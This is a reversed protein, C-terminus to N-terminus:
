GVHGSLRMFYPNRWIHRHANKVGCYRTFCLIQPVLGFCGIILDLPVVLRWNTMKSWSKRSHLVLKHIEAIWFTIFGANKRQIEGWFPPGAPNQLLDRSKENFKECFDRSNTPSACSEKTCIACPSSLRCFTVDFRVCNKTSFSARYFNGRFFTSHLLDRLKENFKECLASKQGFSTM